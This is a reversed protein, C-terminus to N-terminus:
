FSLRLGIRMTRQPSTATTITSTIAMFNSPTSVNSNPQALSPTNTLNLAEGRLQMDWRENLRIRKMVNLNLNFLQPGRLANLGM